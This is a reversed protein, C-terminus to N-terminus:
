DVSKRDRDIANGKGFLRSSCGSLLGTKRRSGSLGMKIRVLDFRHRILLDLGPLATGRSGCILM